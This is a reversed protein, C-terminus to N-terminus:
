ASSRGVSLVCSRGVKFFMICSIVFMFVTLVKLFFMLVPYKKVLQVILQQLRNLQLNKLTVSVMRVRLIYKHKTQKLWQIGPPGKKAAHELTKIGVGTDGFRKILGIGDAGGNKITFYAADVNKQAVVILSALAEPNDIYRFISATRALGMKDALDHINVFAIKLSNDLKNERTSKTAANIVFDSFKHSLSGNKKFAKIVAPVYDIVDIVETALGIGALAVIIPDTEQKTIKYYGQKILDRMDGWIILDSAIGGSIEEISSGSGIVFGHTFRKVRGWVSTLEQKLEEELLRAEKQGPMDTNRIVYYAMELAESLKGEAKLAKIESIYNYNPLKVLSNNVQQQETIEYLSASLFSAIILCVIGILFYKFADRLKDFKM